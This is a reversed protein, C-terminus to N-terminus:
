RADRALQLLLGEKLGVGPVLVRKLGADAMIMRMVACAVAIVDARDPRMGMAGIREAVTRQWLAPVIQELDSLKVKGRKVKGLMQIRLKAMREINGGTGVCIDPQEGENLEARLLGAISGRHREIMDLTASEPLGERQLRQLIRVSGLPLTECGLSLGNRAVTVEVSGGGMDIMVATKGRFDIVKRVAAFVLQAEEVGSIVELEIGTAARIREILEHGNDAERTASTAAARLRTVGHEKLLARFQVFAGTARGLTSEQFYGLSFADAGLRVAERYGAVPEVAAKPGARGIALRIGNSGVDIGAILAM